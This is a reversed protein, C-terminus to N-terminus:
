AKNEVCVALASAVHERYRCFVFLPAGDRLRLRFIDDATRVLAKDLTALLIGHEQPPPQFRFPQFLYVHLYPRQRFGGNGDHIYLAYGLFIHYAFQERSQARYLRVADEIRAIDLKIYLVAAIRKIGRDAIGLSGVLHRCFHELSAGGHYHVTRGHHQRHRIKEAFCKLHRLVIRFAYKVGAKHAQETKDRHGDAYIQGRKEHRQRYPM